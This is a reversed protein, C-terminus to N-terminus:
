RKHKSSKHLRFEILIAQILTKAQTLNIAILYNATTPCSTSLPMITGLHHSLFPLEHISEMIYLLPLLKFHNTLCIFHPLFSPLFSPLFVTTRALVEYENVIFDIRYLLKIIFAPVEGGERWGCYWCWCWCGLVRCRGTNKWRESWHGAMMRARCIFSQIAIAASVGVTSLYDSLGTRGLVWLGRSGSAFIGQWNFNSM